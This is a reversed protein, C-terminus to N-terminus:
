AVRRVLATWCRLERLYLNGLGPRWQGFPYGVKNQLRWIRRMVRREIATARQMWHYGCLFGHGDQPYRRSWRRCGLARCYQADDPKRIAKANGTM